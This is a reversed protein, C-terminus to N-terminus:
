VPGRRVVYYLGKVIIQRHTINGHEAHVYGPLIPFVNKSYDLVTKKKELKGVYIKVRATIRLRTYRRLERCHSFLIIIISIISLILHEFRFTHHYTNRKILIM